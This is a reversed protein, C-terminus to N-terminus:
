VPEDARAPRHDPEGDPRLRRADPEDPRAPRYPGGPQSFALEWLLLVASM